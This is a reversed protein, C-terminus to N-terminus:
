LRELTASSYNHMSQQSSRLARSTYAIVCVEGINDEQSLVAGLGKQSANTELIFEKTFDPYGLVPMTMLATKLADFVMQHESM